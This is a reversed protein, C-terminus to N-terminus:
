MSLGVFPYASAGMDWQPRWGKGEAGGELASLLQCTWDEGLCLSRSGRVFLVEGQGMFLDAFCFHTIGTAAGQGELAREQSLDQQEVALRKVWEVWGNGERKELM